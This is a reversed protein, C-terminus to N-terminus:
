EGRSEWKQRTKEEYEAKKEENMLGEWRVRPVRREEERGNEMKETGCETEHM